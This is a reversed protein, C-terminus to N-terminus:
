AFSTPTHPVTERRVRDNVASLVAYLATRNGAGDFRGARIALALKRYPDEDPVATEGVNELLAVIDKLDSEHRAAAHLIERGAMEVASAAMLAAYRDHGTLAPAVNSRIERAALALLNLTDPADTHAGMPPAPPPRTDPRGERVTKTQKLLDLVSAEIAHVRRGILALELRYEKGDILRQCQQMAIIAWRLGAMAEYFFVTKPDITFGTEAEYANFFDARAGIGGAELDDRGFRWSASCFWALDEHRDGWGCFEWDLIATLGTDDLMYNGTRFDRHVLVIDGPPPKHHQLWRLAAELIPSPRYLTDLAARYREILATAPDVPREELEAALAADPTIRHIAALEKGLRKALGRRAAAFSPDRVIKTALATGNVTDMLLFPRDGPLAPLSFAVPRPVTVGAAHAAQLLRFETERSHSVQVSSPADTRLVVDREGAEPGGEVKLRLRYNEQIAGGSLKDIGKIEVATARLAHKLRETLRGTFPVDSEARHATM